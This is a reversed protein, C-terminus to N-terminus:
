EEVRLRFFGEAETIPLMESHIAQAALGSRSVFDSWSQLDDSHEIVYRLNPHGVPFRYEVTSPTVTGFGPMVPVAEGDFISSNLAFEFFNSFGDGDEDGSKQVNGVLGYNNIYSQFGFSEPTYLMTATIGVNDIRARHTSTLGSRGRLRLTITEGPRLTLASM